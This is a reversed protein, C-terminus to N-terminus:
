KKNILEINWNFYKISLTYLLKTLYVSLIIGLVGLAIFGIGFSITTLFHLQLSPIFLMVPFGLVLAGGAFVISIGAIYFSLLVGVIALFPGLVIVLNFFILLLGILLKRTNDNHNKVDQFGGHNENEVFGTEVSGKYNDAIDRPSGLEKSIEEETKGKSIGIRFHEEYDLLIDQIEGSPLDKLYLKLLDLYEDRNM